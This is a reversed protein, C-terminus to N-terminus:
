GEIEAVLEAATNNLEELYTPIEDSSGNIIMDGADGVARRVSTWSARTPEAQGYQLLELGTVWLSNAAGYDELLDEASIRVPYYASANIWMAQAEPSTFYKLFLWTALKQAPAGEVVAVYQGFANVAKQGDPGVFPAFTWEDASGAEEFAALQYPLGATSSMTFLAKRTAFEPNPYSETPFACGEDWMEKWDSAVARAVPTAFDYAAGDETLGDDGYAFLFSYFNSASPYLVLGGTGDNDPTDDSANAAAAACAQEKFEAANAPPADFGLEQAWSVNYFLVNASQSIPLAIRAGDAMVGGNYPGAYFDAIEEATFGAVPDDIYPQLDAIMGISYWGAIANSYGVIANPVDGSQIAANMVDEAKSYSDQDFAEVTIGWENAANFEDVIAVIGESPAGAGWVHWFTITAGALESFPVGMTETAEDFSNANVEYDTQQQSELRRAEIGPDAMADETSKCATADFSKDDSGGVETAQCDEFVPATKEALAAEEVPAAEEDPKAPRCAGLVVALVFALLMLISLTKRHHLSAFRASGAPFIGFRFILLMAPAIMSYATLCERWERIRRGSLLRREM